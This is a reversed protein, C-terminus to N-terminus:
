ECLRVEMVKIVSFGSRLQNYIYFHMDVNLKLEFMASFKYEITSGGSTLCTVVIAGEDDSDTEDFYDAVFRISEKEIEKWSFTAMNYCDDTYILVGDEQMCVAKVNPINYDDYYITM